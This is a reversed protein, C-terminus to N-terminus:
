VMKNLMKMTVSLSEELTKPIVLGPLVRVAIDMQTELEAGSGYAVTLFHGFDKDTFRRRGEAINSPISIASRRMQTTLAYLEEKPFGATWKYIETVVSMAEHWVKLDRYSQM